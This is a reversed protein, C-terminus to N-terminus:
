FSVGTDDVFINSPKPENTIRRSQQSLQFYTWFSIVLSKETPVMNRYCRHLCRIKIKQSM